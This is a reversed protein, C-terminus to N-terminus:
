KEIQIGRRVFTPVDLDQGDMITPEVDRFRGRGSASDFQLKTQLDKRRRKRRVSKPTEIEAPTEDAREPEDAV